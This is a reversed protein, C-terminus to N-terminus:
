DKPKERIAAEDKLFWAHDNEERIPKTHRHKKM